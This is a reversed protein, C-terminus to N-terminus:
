SLRHSVCSPAPLPAFPSRWRAHLLSLTRCGSALTPSGRHTEPHTYSSVCFGRVLCFFYILTLRCMSDESWSFFYILTLCSLNKQCGGLGQERGGAALFSGVQWCVGAPWSAVTYQHATLWEKVAEMSADSCNSTFM